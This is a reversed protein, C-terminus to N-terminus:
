LVRTQLAVLRVLSEGGNTAKGFLTEWRKTM